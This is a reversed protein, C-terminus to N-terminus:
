IVNIDYTVFAHAILSAYSCDFYCVDSFYSLYLRNTVMLIKDSSLSLTHLTRGTISYCRRASTVHGSRAALTKSYYRRVIWGPTTNNVLGQKLADCGTHFSCQRLSINPPNTTSSLVVPPYEVRWMGQNNIVQRLFVTEEYNSLFGYVPWSRCVQNTSRTDEQLAAAEARM